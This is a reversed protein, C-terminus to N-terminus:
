APRSSSSGLCPSCRLFAGGGRGGGRQPREARPPPPKPHSPVRVEPLALQMPIMLTHGPEAGHQDDLPLLITLPQEAPGCASYGGRPAFPHSESVVGAAAAAAAAGGSLAEADVEVATPAAVAAPAPSDAPLAANAEIEVSAHADVVPNSHLACLQGPGARAAKACGPQTCRKGGGHAACLLAGSHRDAPRAMKLCGTISCRKGGGHLGCFPLGGTAISRGCARPTDGDSVFTCRRGGGHLKCCPTGGARRARTCGEVTCLKLGPAATTVPLPAAAARHDSLNEALRALAAVDM